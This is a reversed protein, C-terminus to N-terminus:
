KYTSPLFCLISLINSRMSPWRKWLSEQNVKAEYNKNAASDSTLLELGGQWFSHAPIECCGVGNPIPFPYHEMPTYQNSMIFQM